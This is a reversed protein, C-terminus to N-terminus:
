VSSMKAASSMWSSSWVSYVEPVTKWAKRMKEAAPEGNQVAQHFWYAAQLFDQETGKGQAYLSGLNYQATTDLAMEVISKYLDFAQEPRDDDLCAKANVLMTQIVDGSKINRRSADGQKRDPKDNKSFLKDFLGM